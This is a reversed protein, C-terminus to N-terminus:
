AWMRVRPEKDQLAQILAAIAEEDEVGVRRLAWAAEARVDAVPDNLARMLVPVATKAAPGLNGLAEIARLRVAADKQAFAAIWERLSKGGYAPADKAPCDSGGQAPILLGASLFLSALFIFM